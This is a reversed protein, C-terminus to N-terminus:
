AGEACLHHPLRPLGDLHQAAQDQARAKLTTRQFRERPLALREVWWAVAAEHDASEHISVRYSVSDRDRGQAELFRLFLGVLLPDSNVFIVREDLRWPKSKGGECWYIAAGLLLLDRDSLEGVVSAAEAHADSRLCDRRERYASWQRHPGEKARERRRRAREAEDIPIHRVWLYATSKSVGLEEAIENVSRGAERLEVAKARLDDKANPRRTWEPVPVGRLWGQVRDRGVGLREQIERLSLQEESRM